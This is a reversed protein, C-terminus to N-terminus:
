CTRMVTLAANLLNSNKQLGQEILAQLQPDTFVERWPLNGFSATDQVALTDTDSLADRILGQTEVKDPREYKNYLGCSGMLLITALFFMM